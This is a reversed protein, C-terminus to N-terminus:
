SARITHAKPGEFMVLPAPLAAEVDVNPAAALIAKTLDVRGALGAAYRLPTM